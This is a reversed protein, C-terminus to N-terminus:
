KTLDAPRKWLRIIVYISLMFGSYLATFAWTRPYSLPDIVRVVLDHALVLPRHFLDWSNWRLFRGIYVGFGALVLSIVSFTTAVRSGLHGRWIEEMIFLSLFGAFLANLTFALIMVVDFGLPALTWESLRALHGLDTLIYPANPFFLLWLFAPIWVLKWASLPRKTHSVIWACVLPVWALVLNWLLFAYTIRGTMLIRIALLGVPFLSAILLSLSVHRDIARFSSFVMTPEIADYM